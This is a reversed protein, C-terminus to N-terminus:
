DPWISHSKQADMFSVYFTCQAGNRCAFLVFKVNSKGWHPLDTILSILNDFVNDRAARGSIIISVSVNRMRLTAQMGFCTGYAM